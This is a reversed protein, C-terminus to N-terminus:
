VTYVKDSQITGLKDILSSVDNFLQTGGDNVAPIPLSGDSSITTASALYGALRQLTNCMELLLDHTQGGLLVPEDPVTGNAKTGLLIKSNPNKGEINIHVNKGANILVDNDTNLGINTKAFLLIEDKKSNLTVRDSNIIVQPNIYSDPPLSTFIPNTILAGPILPLKQTSTMYISSLEKNIEEVNPALSGTNTTIYGNVLITIPDGNNGITSWENEASKFKVTTGFRIGSGKRSQIIYDGEFSKLPRIDATEDFTQGLGITIPSNQQPNNWVNIPGLYFKRLAASTIQSGYSPGNVILITEGILPYNKSNPDFPFAIDCEDLNVSGLYKSSEYDMYFVAGISNYGGARDFMEKSPTNEDLVVGFVKGIQQSPNNTPLTANSTHGQSIYSQISSLGTKIVM